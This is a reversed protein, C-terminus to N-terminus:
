VGGGQGSGMNNMPYSYNNAGLEYVSPPPSFLTPPKFTAQNSQMTLSDYMTTTNDYGYLEKSQPIPQIFVSYNMDTRSTGICVFRCLPFGEGSESKGRKEPPLKPLLLREEGYDLHRFIPNYTCQAESRFDV